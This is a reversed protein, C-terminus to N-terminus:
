LRARADQQFENSISHSNHIENYYAEAPEPTSSKENVVLLPDETFQIVDEDEDSTTTTTPTTTSPTWITSESTTRTVGKIEEVLNANEEMTGLLKDDNTHGQLSLIYDEILPRLEVNLKPFRFCKCVIVVLDRNELWPSPAHSFSNSPM